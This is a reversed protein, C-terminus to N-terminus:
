IVTAAWNPQSLATLMAVAGGVSHGVLTARSVGHRDLESVVHAVQAEISPAADKEAHEGYGYLDLVLLQRETQPALERLHGLGQFLGHVFVPTTEM